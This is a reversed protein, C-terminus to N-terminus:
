AHLALEDHRAIGITAGPYGFGSFYLNTHAVIQEGSIAVGDFCSDKTTHADGVLTVSYGRMAASQAATRACGTM